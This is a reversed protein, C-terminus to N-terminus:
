CKQAVCFFRMLKKVSNVSVEIFCSIFKNGQVLVSCTQILWVCVAVSRRFLPPVACDAGTNPCFCFGCGPVSVDFVGESFCRWSSLGATHEPKEEWGGAKQNTTTTTPSVPLSLPTHHHQGVSVCCQETPFSPYRLSVCATEHSLTSMEQSGIWYDGELGSPKLRCSQGWWATPSGLWVLSALCTQTPSNKECLVASPCSSPESCSSASPQGHSSSFAPTIFCLWGAPVAAGKLSPGSWARCNQIPSRPKKKM